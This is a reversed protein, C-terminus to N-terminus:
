QGHWDCTLGSFSAQTNGAGYEHIWVICRHDDVVINYFAGPVGVDGEVDARPATPSAESCGVFALATAAFLIRKLPKNMITEKQHTPHRHEM